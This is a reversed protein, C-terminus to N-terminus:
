ETGPGISTLRREPTRLTFYPVQESVHCKMCATRLRALAEAAADPKRSKVGAQVAPWDDELFARASQARKPRREIALTLALEIKGMQYDAYDWNRDQVAFFLETNRYGIEAMAVDLGRLHREIQAFREDGDGRIWSAPTEAAPGRRAQSSARAGVWGLLTGAAFAVSVVVGRKKLV